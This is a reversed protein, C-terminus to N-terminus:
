DTRWEVLSALSVGGGGDAGAAGDAGATSDAEDADDVVASFGGRFPTVIGELLSHERPKGNM